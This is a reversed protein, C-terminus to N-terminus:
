NSWDRGRIRDLTQINVLVPDKKAQEGEKQIMFIITSSLYIPRTSATELERAIPVLKMMVFFTVKM